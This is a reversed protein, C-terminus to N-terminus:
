LAFAGRAPLETAEEAPVPRSFLFGQVQDCGHGRVFALAKRLRRGVSRLLRDGGPRGLTDNVQKFRDLDVIAVALGRRERKALAV